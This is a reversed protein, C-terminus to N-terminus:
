LTLETHDGANIIGARRQIRAKRGILSAEMVVDIVQADEELIANRIISSQVQCGAEISVHPGIVSKEVQATPHIYVPPVIVVDKRQAAAASNDRQHDLLYRNTELLAESTGADLWTEVTETRM